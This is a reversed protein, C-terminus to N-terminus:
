CGLARAARERDGPCVHIVYGYGGRGDTVGSSSVVNIKESALKEHFGVLSGLRDDGHILLAPQPGHLVLGAKEATQLLREPSEPYLFLQISGYGVPIAHFALLNVEGAALASLLRYGEGPQDKVTTFYYEVARITTPM